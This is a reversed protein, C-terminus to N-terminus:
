GVQTNGLLVKINVLTLGTEVITENSHLSEDEAVPLALTTIESFHVHIHLICVLPIFHHRKAHFISKLIHASLKVSFRACVLRVLDIRCFLCRAFAQVSFINLFICM